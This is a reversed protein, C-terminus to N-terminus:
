PHFACGSDQQHPARYRPSVKSFGQLHYLSKMAIQSYLGSDMEFSGKECKTTTMLAKGARHVETWRSWPLSSSHGWTLVDARPESPVPAAAANLVFRMRQLSWAETLFDNGVRRWGGFYEVEYGPEVSCRALPAICSFIFYFPFAPGLAISLHIKCHEHLFLAQLSTVQQSVLVVPVLLVFLYCSLVLGKKCSQKKPNKKPKTKTKKCSYCHNPM